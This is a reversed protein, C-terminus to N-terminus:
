TTRDEAILTQVQQSRSLARAGLYSAGVVIFLIVLERGRLKALESGVSTTPVSAGVGGQPSLINHLAQSEEPTATHNPDLARIADEIILVNHRYTSFNVASLAFFAVLIATMVWRFTAHHPKLV